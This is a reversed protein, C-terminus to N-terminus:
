RVNYILIKFQKLTDLSWKVGIKYGDITTNAAMVGSSYLYYWNGNTDRIWGTKMAGSNDLYYWNGNYTIWGTAM